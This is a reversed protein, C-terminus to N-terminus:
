IVSTKSSPLVDIAGPLKDALTQLVGNVVQGFVDRGLKRRDRSAEALDVVVHHIVLWAILARVFRRVAVLLQHFELQDVIEHHLRLQAAHWANGFHVGGAAVFLM